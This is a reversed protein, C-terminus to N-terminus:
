PVPMGNLLEKIIVKDMVNVYGDGDLDCSRLTGCTPEVGNLVQAVAAADCAGVYGDGDADGLPRVTLSIEAYGEGGVDTGRAEVGLAVDGPAGQDIWSGRIQWVLPDDTPLIEVDGDGAAQFVEATYATNGNDDEVVHVELTLAHRGQTTEPTNQYLWGYELEPALLLPTLARFTATVECDSELTITTQPSTVDEVTAVDGTWEVFAFGDPVSAAIAVVDGAEYTGGGTGGEVTLTVDNSEAQAITQVIWDAVLDTRVAEIFDPPDFWSEGSRTVGVSVGVLQWPGTGSDRVFWGGGSDGAALAAEESTAGPGGPPSFDAYLWNGFTSHVTNTGWPLTRNAAGSWTYGYVQGGESLATGRGRGFGGLVMDRGVAGASDWSLEVFHDLGAPQGDPTELRALRVDHDSEYNEAVVYSTGEITVTTGVGGGQHVSAVVWDPDIAVCTCAGGWWGLVGDPPRDAPLRDEHLVLASANTAAVLLAALTTLM